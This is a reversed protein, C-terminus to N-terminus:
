FIKIFNGFNDFKCYKLNFNKIKNCLFDYKYVKWLQLILEFTFEFQSKLFPKSAFIINFRKRHFIVDIKTTLM